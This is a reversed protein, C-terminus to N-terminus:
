LVCKKRVELEKAQFVLKRILDNNNFIPNNIIFSAIDNQLKDLQVKENELTARHTEFNVNSSNIKKKFVKTKKECQESKKKLIYYNDHKARLQVFRFKNKTIEKELTETEIKRKEIMINIESLKSILKDRKVRAKKNFDICEQLYNNAEFAIQNVPKTKSIFKILNLKKTLNANKTNFISVEETLKKKKENIEALKINGTSLKLKGLLRENDKFKFVSKTNNLVFRKNKTLSLTKDRYNNYFSSLLHPLGTTGSKYYSSDKSSIRHTQRDKEESQSNMNRRTSIMLILKTLHLFSIIKIQFTNKNNIHNNIIVNM